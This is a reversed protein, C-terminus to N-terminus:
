IEQEDGAEELFYANGTQYHYNQADKLAEELTEYEGILTNNHNYARYNIMKKEM